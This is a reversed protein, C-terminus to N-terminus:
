LKLCYQELAKEVAAKLCARDLRDLGYKKVSWKVILRVVQSLVPRSVPAHNVLSLLKVRLIAMEPDTHERSIINWFRSIEDSTLATSYFGHKRANQNCKQGGRTKKVHQLGASM